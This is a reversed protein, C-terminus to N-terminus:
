ATGPLTQEQRRHVPSCLLFCQPCCHTWLRYTLLQPQALPPKTPPGIIWLMSSSSSCGKHTVLQTRLYNTNTETFPFAALLATGFCCLHLRCSQGYLPTVKSLMSDSITWCASRVAPQAVTTQPPHSKQLPASILRILRFTGLM